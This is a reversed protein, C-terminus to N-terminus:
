SLSNLVYIYGHGGVLFIENACLQNTRVADLRQVHTVDHQMNRFGLWADKRVLRLANQAKKKKKKNAGNYVARFLHNFPPSSLVKPECMVDGAERRERENRAHTATQPLAVTSGKELRCCNCVAFALRREGQPM